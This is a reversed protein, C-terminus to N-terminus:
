CKSWGCAKCITCGEENVLMEGCDPCEPYDPSFTPKADGSLVMGVAHPCSLVKGGNGWAPASCRIGLLQEVIADCPVGYRLSISIVRGLAELMANTCGGSNGATLFVEALEKSRYRNATVYLSKGCGLAMKTTRGEMTSPRIHKINPSSDDSNNHLSIVERDRSGARYITIGKLGVDHAKHITSKIDDVSTGNSVNITKSVASDTYAQFAAAISIHQGLPIDESIPFLKHIEENVDESVLNGIDNGDCLNEVLEDTIEIQQQLLYECLTSNLVTYEEEEDGVVVKRRYALRFYPEIGGNVGSLISISGTPAISTRTANRIGNHSISTYLEEWNIDQIDDGYVKNLIDKDPTYDIKTCRISRWYDKTYLSEGYEPFSGREQALVMSTHTATYNIFEMVTYAIDIAEPSNYSVGVMSLMDAFGMVGLGIKRTDQTRHKISPIPYCNVDIIRDLMDVATVITDHLLDWNITGNKVHARLNISGLNCSEYPLLPKEGCPNTTLYEGLHPTPNYRNMTDGFLIGPEGNEWMGQAIDDLIRNASVSGRIEGDFTLSIPNDHLTSNMFDDDVVVSINHNTITNEGEKCCIFELIDPHHVDMAAMSAGRRRGGQKITGVMVDYMKLFSVPGSAIGGTSGVAYGKPRLRSLAYGTGGGSKQILAVQRMVDMISTMSDELPVVFCASLQGHPTGANMLTPSNPLFRNSRMINNGVGVYKVVRDIVDELSDEGDILYRKLVTDYISM